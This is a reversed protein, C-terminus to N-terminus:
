LLNMTLFAVFFCFCFWDPNVSISVCLSYFFVIHALPNIIGVHMEAFAFWLLFFIFIFDFNFYFYFYFDLFLFLFYFIFISKFKFIWYPMHIDYCVCIYHSLYHFPGTDSFSFACSMILWPHCLDHSEKKTIEEYPYLLDRLM